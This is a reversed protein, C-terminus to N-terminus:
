KGSLSLHHKAPSFFVGCCMVLSMAIEAAYTAMVAGRWSWLPILWLNLAINLISGGALINVAFNQRDSGMLLSQLLLRPLSVVPIWALWQVIPVADIYGAGLLLPLIGASLYLGLGAIISYALPVPLIRYTYALAAHVGGVGTRFFRPMVASIFSLVPVTTLDAVRYGASYAGAAEMSALRALMAKDIDAYIKAAAGGFAFAWGEHLLDSFNIGSPKSAPGFDKHVMSWAYLAAAIASAAYIVAWADLRMSDPLVITLPLLVLAGALRPMVPVISLHAARGLREHGQYATIAAQSVPAIVLDALGILAIVTLSIGTPLIAWALPFYLAFLIPSSIGISALTRGWAAAFSGLNRSVDRVMLVQTGCGSFCGFATSLAMVAAYAGYDAAGLVRAVIFFVIAQALTRLGMGATMALTGMALLGPRWSCLNIIRKYLTQQSRNV